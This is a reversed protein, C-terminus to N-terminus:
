YKLGFRKLLEEQWALPLPTGCALAYHAHHRLEKDTFGSPHMTPLFQPHTALEQDRINSM